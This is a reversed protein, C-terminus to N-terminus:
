AVAVVKMARSQLARERQNENLTKKCLRLNNPSAEPSKFVKVVVLEGDDM